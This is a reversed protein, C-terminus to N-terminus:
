DRMGTDYGHEQGWEQLWQDLDANAHTGQDPDMGEAAETARHLVRDTAGKSAEEEWARQAELLEYRAKILRLEPFTHTTWLGGILFLPQGKNKFLEGPKVEVTVQPQYDRLYLLIRRINWGDGHDFKWRMLAHLRYGAYPNGAYDVWYETAEAWGDPLQNLAVQAPHRRQEMSLAPM